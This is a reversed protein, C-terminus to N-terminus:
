RDKWGCDECSCLDDSAADSILCEVKENASNAELTQDINALNILGLRESLQEEIPGLAKSLQDEIPGFAESFPSEIPGLAESIQDEIPGLEESLQCEISGLKDSLQEESIESSQLSFFFYILTLFFFLKLPSFDYPQRLINLM